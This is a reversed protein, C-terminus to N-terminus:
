IKSKNMIETDCKKKNKRNEKSVIIDEISYLEALFYM